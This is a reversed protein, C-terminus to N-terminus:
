SVIKIHKVLWGIEDISEVNLVVRGKGNKDIKINVKSHLKKSLVKEWDHIKEYINDTHKQGNINPTKKIPKIYNETERVSLNKELIKDAISIQNGGPLPLL